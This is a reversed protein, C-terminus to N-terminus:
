MKWQTEGNRNENEAQIAAREDDAYTDLWPPADDRTPDTPTIPSSALMASASPTVGNAGSGWSPTPASAKWRIPSTKGVPDIRRGDIVRGRVNGLKTGVSVASALNHGERPPVLEALAERLADDAQAHKLLQAVTTGRPNALAGMVVVLAASEREHTSPIDATTTCPDPRGAWVIAARVLRSWGEFSGLPRFAPTPRGAVFYARLITLAAALFQARNQLAFGLLDAHQFDNREEPREHHTELRVYLCRRALDGVLQLNNGTAFFLVRMPLRIARNGGLLRDQWVDSTLAADLSPGGITGVVNDILVAGHGALVISTIVKRQESEDSSPPQRPMPRGTTIVGILDALRSKGTGPANADFVLMPVPGTFAPRAVIALLGALWASRGSETAFPFDVILGLLAKAACRADDRSPELLLGELLPTSVFLSTAADYGAAVLVTGDARVTAHEIIGDLPRLMPWRQRAFIEDVVWSPPHAPVTEAKANKKWWSVCQTLLERVRPPTLTLLVPTRDAGSGLDDSETGLVIEVLTNGRRFVNPLERFAELAADIIESERTHILISPLSSM